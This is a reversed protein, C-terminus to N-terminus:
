QVATAAAQRRAARDGSWDVAADDALPPAGCPGAALECGCAEDLIFDRFAALRQDKIQGEPWTLAYVHSALAVFKEGYPRVLRGAALEANIMPSRGLAIGLGDIAASLAVGYHSFRLRPQQAAGTDVNLRKLWFGWDMAQDPAPEEEILTHATLDFKEASGGSRDLLAPSCVPYSEERFLLLENEASPQDAPHAVIAADFGDRAFDPARFDLMSLRIEINPHLTALRGLRPVLWWTAFATPVAITLIGSQSKCRIRDTARLIVDLGARVAELLIKGDTTLEIGPNHRWFLPAGLFEELAKIQHSVASQTLSLDGAALTFSGKRAVAEFTRLTTLPPVSRYSTASANWM